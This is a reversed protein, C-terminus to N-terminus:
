IRWAVGLEGLLFVISAYTTWICRRLKERWAKVISGRLCQRKKNTATLHASIRGMCTSMTGAHIIDASGFCVCM